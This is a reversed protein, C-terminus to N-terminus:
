PKAGAPEFRGIKGNAYHREVWAIRSGQTRYASPILEFPVWANGLLDMVSVNDLTVRANSCATYSVVGFSAEVALVRERLNCVPLMLGQGVAEIYLPSAKGTKIREFAERLFTCQPSGIAPIMTVREAIGQLIAHAIRAQSSAVVSTHWHDRMDRILNNIDLLHPIKM